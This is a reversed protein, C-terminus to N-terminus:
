SNNSSLARALLFGVGLGILLAPIPNRRIMDTLDSALGSLGEERLYRFRSSLSGGRHNRARSLCLLRSTAM